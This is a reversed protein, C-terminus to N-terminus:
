MSVFRKLKSDLYVRGISRNELVIVEETTVPEDRQVTSMIRMVGRAKEEDSQNLTILKTIHGIKRWDEAVDTSSVIGKKASERNSQSATIVAINRKQAMGRLKKWIDDLNHRNEDRTDAKMIDAYDIIVVDPIFNKYYEMNSIHQTINGITAQGSELCLIEFEGTRSICNFNKQHRQIMEPSTDVAKRFQQEEHIQFDNGHKVFSRIAVMGDRRPAGTFCQWARRTCQKEVMELSVFLVKKGQLFAQWAMLLLWFSKGRKPPGMVAIFDGRTIPGIQDGLDGPLKFLREDISDFAEAIKEHDKFLSLSDGNDIRIKNFEAILNEGQTIKKNAIMDDLQDRLKKLSQLKFYIIANELSYTINTIQWRESDHSLTTLYETILELESEKKIFDKKQFYIEQINRQPAEKTKSFYEKVWSCITRTYPSEFLLETNITNLKSLFQTDLIMQSLIKREDSLDIRTINVM